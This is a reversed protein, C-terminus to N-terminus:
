SEEIWQERREKLIRNHYPMMDAQNFVMKKILEAYLTRDTCYILKGKTLIQHLLTGTTESLDVLDVPRNLKIALEEIIHILIEKSFSEEGAIALDVDSELREKGTVTSGYLIGLSIVPYQELTKEIIKDISQNMM